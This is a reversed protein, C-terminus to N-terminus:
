KASLLKKIAKLQNKRTVRTAFKYGTKIGEAVMGAGTMRSIDVSADVAAGKVVGKLATRGGGGFVVELEDAFLMQALIDGQNRGKFNKSIAQINDVATILNARGKTNNMLGRLATGFAKDAHPGKINLKRGVVDQLENIGTITESFRRNADKYMPYEDGIADNIGKRYDGLLKEVAGSVGGEQKKGHSLDEDLFKKFKHADLADPNPRRQIKTLTNSVLTKAPTSFEILSDTFDLKGDADLKVGMEGLDDFFKNTPTSIDVPEDKLSNKAIDGLDAGAKKNEKMLLNVDQLLSDGAVDAPRYRQQDLPKGEVSEMVKVMKGFKAKDVAPSNAIMTTMGDDFGQKRAEKVMGFIRPQFRDEGLKKTFNKKIRESGTEAMKKGLPSNPMAFKPTIGGTLGVPPLAGLTKGITKVNEQGAEGSPEYTFQSARQQALQMAEEQTINGMLNKAIGEVTGAMFGLAGGTAGTAITLATEGLGQIEEGLTYEKHQAYSVQGGGPVDSNGFQQQALEPAAVANMTFGEPLGQQAPENLTFGEPLENAM